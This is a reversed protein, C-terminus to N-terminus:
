NFKHSDRPSMTTTDFSHGELTESMPLQSRTIAPKRSNNGKNPSCRRAVGTFFTFTLNDMDM